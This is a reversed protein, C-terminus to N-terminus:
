RPFLYGLIRAKIRLIRFPDKERIKKYTWIEPQAMKALLELKKNLSDKYGLFVDNRIDGM